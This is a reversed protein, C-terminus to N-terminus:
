KQPQPANPDIIELKLTRDRKKRVKSYEDTITLKLEYVGPPLTRPLVSNMVMSNRKEPATDDTGQVGERDVGRDQFDRVLKGDKDWLELQITFWYRWLNKGDRNKGEPVATLHSFQAAVRIQNGALFKSSDRIKPFDTVRDRLGNSFYVEFLEFPVRDVLDNRVREVDKLADKTDGAHIKLTARSLMLWDRNVSGDPLAELQQILTDVAARSSARRDNDVSEDANCIRALLLAAMETMLRVESDSFSTEGEERKLEQVYKLVLVSSAEDTSITRLFKFFEESRVEPLEYKIVEVTKTIVVPDPEKTEATTGGENGEATNQIESDTASLGTGQDKASVDHTTSPPENDGSTKSQQEAEDSTGTSKEASVNASSSEKTNTAVNNAPHDSAQAVEEDARKQTQASESSSVTETSIQGPEVSDSEESNAGDIPNDIEIVNSPENSSKSISEMSQSADPKSATEDSKTQSPTCSLVGLALTVLGFNLTTRKM